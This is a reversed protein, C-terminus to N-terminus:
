LSNVKVETNEKVLVDVTKTIKQNYKDKVSINVKKLGSTKTSVTNNFVLDGTYSLVLKNYDITEGVLVEISQECDLKLKTLSDDKSKHYQKVSKIANKHMDGIFTEYANLLSDLEIENLVSLIGNQTQEGIIRKRSIVRTHKFLVISNDIKLNYTGDEKKRKNSTTTPFALFLDRDITNVLVCYHNLGFEPNVNGSLDVLYIGGNRIKKSISM